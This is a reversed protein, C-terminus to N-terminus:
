TAMILLSIRLVLEDETDDLINVQAAELSPFFDLDFEEEGDAVDVQGLEIGNLYSKAAVETFM